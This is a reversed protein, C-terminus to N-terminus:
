HINKRMSGCANNNLFSGAKMLFALTANKTRQDTKILLMGQKKRPDASIRLHDDPIEPSVAVYINKEHIPQNVVSLIKSANFQHKKQYLSYSMANRNIFLVFRICFLQTTYHRTSKHVANKVSKKSKAAQRSAPQNSFFRATKNTSNNSPSRVRSSESAKPQSTHPTLQSIKSM